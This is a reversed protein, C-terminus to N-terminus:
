LVPIYGDLANGKKPIHRSKRLFYSIFVKVSSLATRRSLRETACLNEAVPGAGTDRAGVDGVERQGLDVIM